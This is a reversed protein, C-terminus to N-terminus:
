QAFRNDIIGHRSPYQGTLISARNPSCLPVVHYARTFISGSKALSDLGPTKLYSHGGGSWENFRMDDVVILVFNPKHNQAYQSYSLNFLLSYLTVLLTKSAMYM